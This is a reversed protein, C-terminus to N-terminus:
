TSLPQRSADDILVSYHIDGVCSNHVLVAFGHLLSKKVTLASDNLRFM